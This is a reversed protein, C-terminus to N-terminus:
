DYVMIYLFIYCIYICNATSTILTLADVVVVVVEAVAM